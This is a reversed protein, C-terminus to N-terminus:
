KKFVDSMSKGRWEDPAEIAFIEAITAAVDYQMMPRTFEGLRKINKGSIIFPTNMEMDSKGGHGRATGGHDSTIIFISNDYIGAGKTAEIINGIYSDLVRLDDYYEPSGFGAVHGAHDPRDFIFIGLAPKENTIYETAVKSLAEPSLKYDPTQVCYDFAMSDIVHAIGNWEYIVGMEIEPYKEDIVQFVTPFIGNKRIVFSPIEPASSNWETYGHSEPSVGMFMTAWNVASSSPLVARKGLTYCGESMQAKVNPMDAKEISFSGWGDLGIFILHEAKWEKQQSCAVTALLLTILYLNKKHSKINM